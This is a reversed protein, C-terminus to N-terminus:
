ESHTELQINATADIREILYSSMSAALSPGRVLMFVRDAYQSLFVAAQGASNGGGVLVVESRTCMQAELASAWYWVGRGEFRELGPVAPRRYRAGSAAVVTRAKLRRDD